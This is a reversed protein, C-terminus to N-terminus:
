PAATLMAATSGTTSRFSFSQHVNLCRVHQPATALRILTQPHPHRPHHPNAWAREHVWCPWLLAWGQTKTPNQYHCWSPPQHLNTSTPDKTAHALLHGSTLLRSTGVACDSTVTPMFHSELYPHEAANPFTQYPSTAPTVPFTTTSQCIAHKNTVRIRTRLGQGWCSNPSGTACMHHHRAGQECTCRALWPVHTACVCTFTCTGLLLTPGVASIASTLTKPHAWPIPPHM